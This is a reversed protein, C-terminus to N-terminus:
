LLPLYLLFYDWLVIRKDLLLNIYRELIYVIYKLLIEKKQRAIVLIYCDNNKDLFDNKINSKNLFQMLNLYDM